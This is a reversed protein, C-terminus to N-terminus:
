AGMSEGRSVMAVMTGLGVSGVRMLGGGGASSKSGYSGLNAVWAGNMSMRGAMSEAGPLWVGAMDAM